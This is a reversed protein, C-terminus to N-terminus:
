ISGSVFQGDNIQAIIKTYENRRRDAEYEKLPRYRRVHEEYSVMYDDLSKAFWYGFQASVNDGITNLLSDRKFNLKNTKGPWHWYQNVLKIGVDSNEFGEWALHGFFWWWPGVGWFYATVGSAFHLLSYQDIFGHM